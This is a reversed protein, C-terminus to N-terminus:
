LTMENSQSQRKIGATMQKQSPIIQPKNRGTFKKAEDAAIARVSELDHKNITFTTMKSTSKGSFKIGTKDLRDAIQPSLASSYKLYAKDRINKYATNGIIKYGGVQAATQAKNETKQEPPINKATQEAAPTERVVEKEHRIELLREAINSIYEQNDDLFAIRENMPNHLLEIQRNMVYDLREFNQLYEVFRKDPVEYESEPRLKSYDQLVKFYEAFVLFAQKDRQEFEIRQQVIKQASVVESKTPRKDTQIGLGFDENIKHAAELTNNLNFFKRVFEITDGSEGCGYCRFGKEYIKMSPTKEAHFPCICMDSRNLEIGYARVIEQLTLREKIEQFINM